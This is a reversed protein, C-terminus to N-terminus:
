PCRRPTSTGRSWGTSVPTTFRSWSFRIALATPSTPSSRPKRERGPRAPAVVAVYSTQGASGKGDSPCQFIKLITGALQSNNPGDWPEDFRYLDYLAQQELFPLILVRWSHMPKGSADAVYAPPFSKYVDHYNQLAISIHRLNNQCRARPVPMSRYPPSVAPLLIMIALLVIGVVSTELPKRQFAFIAIGMAGAFAAICLVGPGIWQYAAGAVCVAAMVALLHRLGFQWPRAPPEPEPLEPPLTSHM